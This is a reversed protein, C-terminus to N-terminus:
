RGRLLHTLDPWMPPQEPPLASMTRGSSTRIRGARADKPNDCGQGRVRKGVHAAWRARPRPEPRLRQWQGRHQPRRAEFIWLNAADLAESLPIPNPRPARQIRPLAASREGWVEEIGSSRSYM